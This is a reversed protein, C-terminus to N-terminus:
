DSRKSLARKEDAAAFIGDSGEVIGCVVQRTDRSCLTARLAGCNDVESCAGTRGAPYGGKLSLTEAALWKSVVSKETRSAFRFGSFQAM